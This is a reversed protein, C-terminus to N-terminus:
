IGIKLSWLHLDNKNTFFLYANNDDMFPDSVDIEKGVITELDVIMDVAGTASDISWISDSFSTLGQYWDDPQTGLIPSKPVGCYIMVPNVTSWVCKDPFTNLTIETNTNESRDFVSLVIGKESRYESYLVKKGDPSMRTLLGKKNGLVTTMKGSAADLAYVHGLTKASANSTITITKEEPWGVQWEHLPSSFIEKKNSGDFNSTFGVAGTDTNNLTFIHKKDPSVAIGIIQGPLFIGELTTEGASSIGSTNESAGVVKGYFSVISGSGAGESSDGEYRLILSNGDMEWAVDQVKLITTNTIRTLNNTATTTEFIHGTKRELFRVFTIERVKNTMTHAGGIATTSIERLIPLPENNDTKNGGGGNETTTAGSGKEKGGEGFPFFGKGGGEEGSGGGLFPIGSSSLYFMWVLGAVVVLLFFLIILLGTKRKM